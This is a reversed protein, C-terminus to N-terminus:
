RCRYTITSKFRTQITVKEGDIKGYVNARLKTGRIWGRGELSQDDKVKIDLLLSGGLPPTGNWKGNLKEPPFLAFATIPVIIVLSLLFRRKM